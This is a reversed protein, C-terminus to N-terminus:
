GGAAGAGARAAAGAPTAFGTPDFAARLWLELSVMRWIEHGPGRLVDRNRDLMAAVEARDLLGRDVARGRLLLDRLWPAHRRILWQMVPTEFGRKDRRDLIADPVIGRMARRLVGKTLGGDLKQAPALQFALEIVRYDLFPVRAEISFAM